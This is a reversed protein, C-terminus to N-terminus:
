ADRDIKDKSPMLEQYKQWFTDPNEFALHKMLGSHKALRPTLVKMMGMDDTISSATQYSLRLRRKSNSGALSRPLSLRRLVHQWLSSQSNVIL